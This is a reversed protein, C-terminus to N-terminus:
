SGPPVVSVDDRPAGAATSGANDRAGFHWSFALSIIEFDVLGPNAIRVNGPAFDADSNYHEYAFGLSWDQGLYDLGARVGIAGYPSLRYDSSYLGAASEQEFFPGYFDAQSQQYWRLRGSWRWQQQVRGLVGFELTDANIDWDDVFHRWDFHLALKLQRWYHRVRTTLAWQNREDPRSDPRTQSDVFVLKYPDSLYGSDRAFSLGLQAVTRPSLIQSIGAVAQLTRKDASIIRDPFQESGGDTPALSDESLGVGASWTRTRQHQDLEWELGGSFATYDNEDSVGLRGRWRTNGGSDRGLGVNLAYREETISAGSMVQVAGGENDPLVFWPSAGSMTEVMLGADLSWRKTLARAHNAQLTQIEYRAQSEGNAARGGSLDGETYLSYRYGTRTNDAAYTPLAALAGTLALLARSPKETM